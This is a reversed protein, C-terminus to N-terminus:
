RDTYGVGQIYTKCLRCPCDAPSWNIILTKFQRVSSSKKINDPVLNWIKCGLFRLTDEGFHVTRINMSELEGKKRLNYVLDKREVFIDEM